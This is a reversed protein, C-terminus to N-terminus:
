YPTLSSKFFTSRNPTASRMFPIVNRPDQTAEETFETISKELAQLEKVLDDIREKMGSDFDTQPKNLYVGLKELLFTYHNILFENQERKLELKTCSELTKKLLQHHQKLATNSTHLLIRQAQFDELQMQMNEERERIEERQNRFGIQALELVRLMIKGRGNNFRKGYKLMNLSSPSKFAV